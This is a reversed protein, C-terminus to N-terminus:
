FPYKILSVPDAHASMIAPQYEGYKRNLLERLRFYNVAKSIEAIEEDTARNLAVWRNLSKDMTHADQFEDVEQGKACVSIIAWTADIQRSAYIMAHELTLRGDCVHPKYAKLM